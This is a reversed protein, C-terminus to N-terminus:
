AANGLRHASRRARSPQWSLRGGDNSCLFEYVVCESYPNVGILTMQKGCTPCAPSIPPANKAPIDSAPM